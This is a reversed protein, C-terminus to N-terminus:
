GSLDESVRDPVQGSPDILGAEWRVEHALRAGDRARAALGIGDLAAGGVHLGPADRRLAARVRDVRAVHGVEHQPLAQWWRQVMTAVPGADLDALERVELDVADVLRDDDWHLPTDDDIRGVSARLLVHEHEAHHPWKNSAFTIAKVVRGETRPVLVGSGTPGAGRVPRPYAMAVVGVSAAPIVALERAAEASVAVLLRAAQAAPVALIVTDAPFTEGAATRVQWRAATGGPEIAVVETDLHLRAGLDAALRDVLRGLGGRLTLFVPTEPTSTARRRALALTLSRHQSAAEWLPTAAAQASLRDARGAYVGGLLPEVLREVVASGFREGVLDAVSRDGVVQRRPLVPELAVRLLAGPGLVGSRAVARLDTPAGLVTGEPLPRRRGDVWLSVAGTAPAVLDDDGFGANRALREAEPQRALFADAGVDFTIGAFPVTRIEGGARDSAELLTVDVDKRVRWAAALGTLGAGVVVARHSRSVPSSGSRSAESGARGSM